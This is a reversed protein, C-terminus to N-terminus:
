PDSMRIELVSYTGTAFVMRRKVLLMRFNVLVESLLPVLIRVFVEWTFNLTNRRISVLPASYTTV